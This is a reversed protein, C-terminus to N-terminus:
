PATPAATWPVSAGAPLPVEFANLVMSSLCYYGTLTVLEVLPREGLLALVADYRERDAAGTHVLQRVFAYVTRDGDDDFDPEATGAAIGQVAAGPLGADRGYVDHRLWAFAAHWRAAVTLIVLERHSRSLASEYRLLAGLGAVARGVEPSRLLVDFPGTLFGEPRVATAGRPGAALEEWMERQACTLEAERLPELRGRVGTGTVPGGGDPTRASTAM